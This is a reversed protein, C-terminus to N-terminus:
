YFRRNVLIQDGPYIPLDLAPNKQAKIANVTEKTGDARIVEISRKNAYDTFDGAVKIAKLVTMEGNYVLRNPSKVEGGVFFFREETKVTVTLRRYLKPVYMDHIEKQLTGPSKGAAHVAGILHLTITGDDKIREEHPLPPQTIDAYTVTILDGVRLLDFNTVPRPKPSEGTHTPSTTECGTLFFALSLLALLGRFGSHRVFFSM